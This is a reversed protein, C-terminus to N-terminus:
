VRSTTPLTLHTYSVPVSGGAAQSAHARMSARKPTTWRRTDIVYGIDARASFGDALSLVETVRFLKILPRFFDLVKAISQRDITAEMLTAVDAQKAAETVIEHVRVHDPHGYGGARDYSVVVGPMENEFITRVAAIQEARDGACWTVSNASAKGDLGSDAYGLWYTQAVGLIHASENLESARTGALGDALESSTLGAGGDTAMILIVRHGREHLARMTGATLLAEDDPHAHVFAITSM